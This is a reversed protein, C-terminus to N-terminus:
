YNGFVNTKKGSSDYTALFPEEDGSLSLGMIMRDRHNKDKMILVPAENPGALRLLMRIDGKNDNLSVIPLGKEGPATYTGLQLRIKGDPAYFNQGPSGQNVYLELGKPMADDGLLFYSMRSAAQSPTSTLMVQATFGGAFAFLLLALGQAIKKM